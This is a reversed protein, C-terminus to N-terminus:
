RDKEATLGVILKLCKRFAKHLYIVACSQIFVTDFTLSYVPVAILFVIGAAEVYAMVAKGASKDMYFTDNVISGGGIKWKTELVEILNDKTV